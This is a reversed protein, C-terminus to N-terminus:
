LFSIKNSAEASPWKSSSSQSRTSTIRKQPKNKRQPWQRCRRVNRYDETGASLSWMIANTEQEAKNREAKNRAEIMAARPVLYGSGYIGRGSDKQSELERVFEARNERYDVGYGSWKGLMVSTVVGDPYEYKDPHNKNEANIEDNVAKVKATLNPATRILDGRSCVFSTRVEAGNDYTISVSAAIHSTAPRLGLLTLAPAFLFYDIKHDEYWALIQSLISFPPNDIVVCGDPYNERQYDGGPYFPRVIKRDQWGYEEVAWDKVANYIAPPTYCDDTTLKPKFKDEFEDYQEDREGNAKANDVAEAIKEDEDVDPDLLEPDDLEFVGMDSGKLEILEEDLLQADWTALESVKNDAIRFERAERETLDDAVIVPVEKLGLKKAAKFRTHGSIIVGSGDVIIPNKFGYRKISEELAPVAADNRRPNRAYPKLESLKKYVIGVKKRNNPM